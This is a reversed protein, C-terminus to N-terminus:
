YVLKNALFYVEVDIETLASTPGFLITNTNTNTQTSAYEIIRNSQAEPHLTTEVFSNTQIRTRISHIKFHITYYLWEMCEM